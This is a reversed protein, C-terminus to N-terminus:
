YISFGAGFSPYFAGNASWFGGRVDFSLRTTLDVQFIGGGGYYGSAEVFDRDEETRRARAVGGEFYLGLNARGLAPAFGQFEGGFRVNLLGTAGQIDTVVQFGLNHIPFGGIGFRVGGGWVREPALAELRGGTGAASLVFGRRNLPARGLQFVRGEHPDLIAGDAWAAVEPSIDMVPVSVWLRPQTPRRRYLHLPHDGDLQLWGDYRAGESLALALVGASVAVAAIAVIVLAARGDRVGSGGGGGGGSPRSTRGGIAGGGSPEARPAPARLQVQADSGRSIRLRPTRRVIAAGAERAAARAVLISMHQTAAPDNDSINGPGFSLEQTAHLVAGRESRPQHAIRDLESSRIRYNSGLCGTLLVLLLPWILGSRLPRAFHRTPRLM